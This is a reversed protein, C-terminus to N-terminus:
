DSTLRRFLVDKMVEVPAKRKLWIEYALVGQYLLMNDGTVVKLGRRYAKLLFPTILPRYVIDSILTNKNISEWNIIDQIGSENGHMGQSTTNVILDVSKIMEGFREPAFEIVHAKAKTNDNVVEAIEEARKLTRNVIYIDKVNHLGLTVCIGRSAGGAGFVLVSKGQCSFGSEELSMIFGRGDTNYGILKGNDNHITNVAGILKADESVDDIYEMIGQKHPITVNVGLLGLAKIGHVADKLNESKVNFPVYVCDLGEYEFAANHMEPSLSHEIPDGFIGLIKTKGNVYM